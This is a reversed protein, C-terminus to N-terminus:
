EVDKRCVVASPTMFPILPAIKLPPTQKKTSLLLLAESFTEQISYQHLFSVVLTTLVFAM